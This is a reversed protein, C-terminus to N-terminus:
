ISSHNTPFHINPFNHGFWTNKGHFIPTRSKRNWNERLGISDIFTSGLLAKSYLVWCKRPISHSIMPFADRARHWPKVMLSPPMGHIIPIWSPFHPFDPRWLAPRLSRCARIIPPPWRRPLPPAAQIWHKVQSCGHVHNVRFQCLVRWGSRIKKGVLISNRVHKINTQFYAIGKWGLKKLRM